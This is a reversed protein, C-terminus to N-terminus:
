EEFMFRPDSLAEEPRKCVYDPLLESARLTQENFVALKKSM